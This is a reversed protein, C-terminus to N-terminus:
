NGTGGMEPQLDKAGYRKQFENIKMMHIEDLNLFSKPVFSM